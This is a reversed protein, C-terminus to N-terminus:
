HSLTHVGPTGGCLPPNCDVGLLKIIGEGSCVQEGGLPSLENFIYSWLLIWKEKRWIIVLM